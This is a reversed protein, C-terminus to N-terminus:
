SKLLQKYQLVIGYIDKLLEITDELHPFTIYTNFNKLYMIKVNAFNLLEKQKVLFYFRLYVRDADPDLRIYDSIKAFLELYNLFMDDFNGKVITNVTRFFFDESLTGNEVKTNAKKVIENFIQLKRNDKALQEKIKQIENLTDTENLTELRKLNEFINKVLNFKDMESMSILDEKVEKESM